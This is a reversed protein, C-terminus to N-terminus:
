SVGWKKITGDEANNAIPAVTFVYLNSTDTLDMFIFGIWPQVIIWAADNSSYYTYFHDYTAWAGTPAVSNGIIYADGDSPSAPPTTTTQNIVKAHVMSDITRWSANISAYAGKQREVLEELNMKDTSTM